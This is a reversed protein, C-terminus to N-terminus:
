ENKKNGNDNQFGLTPVIETPSFPSPLPTATPITTATPVVTVTPESTPTPTPTDTPKKEEGPTPTPSGSPTPSPLGCIKTPKTGRLFYETYASATAYEVKMGDEFCVKEEEVGLPKRFNEVPKGQLYAEMIQRWIPAAGLSGAISSMPANDNNGIWVGVTVQPTYGITLADKYDNTTGTKVAAPRSITLSGGFTDSRAKNDSLISSLLYAVAESVVQRSEPAHQFIVSGNKDRIELVTSYQHWVGEDAFTAFANTMEILPVEASGLVLSLGYNKDNSLTTIGLSRAFDLANNIGVMELVHIAPINLSNALAYRILVKGRFKNDYNKPEYDGFKVPKDDIQMSTTIVREELGKAYVIPKFSSGPQRPQLAMNVKGNKEDNWDHSGVLALVEGTVPDIVVAAGNTVNSSALRQVQTEVAQQAKTQLDLDLTTKVQFGSQAITQEGYEKILMDQVMLAFHIAEQNVGNRSPQLTIKQKQAQTKQANTIYGQEAMLELVLNKRKIAANKNGSIPSYASPAQIIGALMASEALTLNKADKSFYRQAADQIGFAGEGFYITNLYMELIDNKSYRRELEVALVIEQYKRLLRKDPSLIANKILQQSITSGGQAFSESYLNERIARGFGRISFGPHTYFDKDEVAIFAETTIKPLDSIEVPNKAKADFLTFFPKENRDLLVVGANKKNIINEKSSLDRVFYAYTFVPILLMTVTGGLLGYLLPKRSHKLVHVVDKRNLSRLRQIKAKLRDMYSDSHPETPHPTSHEEKM